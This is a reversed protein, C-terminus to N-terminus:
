CGNYVKDITERPKIIYLIYRINEFNTKYRINIDQNLEDSAVPAITSLVTATAGLSISLLLSSISSAGLDSKTAIVSELVLM